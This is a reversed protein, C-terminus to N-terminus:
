VLTGLDDHWGYSWERWWGTGSQDRKQLHLLAGNSHYYSSSTRGQFGRIRSVVLLLYIQIYMSITVYCMLLFLITAILFSVFHRYVYICVYSCIFLCVQSDTRHFNLACYWCVGESTHWHDSGGHRLLKPQVGAAVAPALLGSSVKAELWSPSLRELKDTDHICSHIYIHIHSCV